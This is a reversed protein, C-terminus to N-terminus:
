ASDKEDEEGQCEQGANKSHIHGFEFGIRGEFPLTFRDEVTFATISPVENRKAQPLHYVYCTSRAYSKNVAVFPKPLPIKPRQVFTSACLHLYLLRTADVVYRQM